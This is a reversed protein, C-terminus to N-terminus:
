KKVVVLRVPTNQLLKTLESYEYRTGTWTGLNMGRNQFVATIADKNPQISNLIDGNYKM